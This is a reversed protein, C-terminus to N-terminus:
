HRVLTLVIGDGLDISVELRASSKKPTELSGLDIFAAASRSAAISIGGDLLTRWRYFAAESVQELKCFNRRSMNSKAFRDILARWQEQSKQIRPKVTKIPELISERFIIFRLSANDM